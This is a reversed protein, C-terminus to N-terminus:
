WEWSFPNYWTWDTETEGTGSDSGSGSGSGDPCDCITPCPAQICQAEVETCNDPCGETQDKGSANNRLLFFGTLALGTIGIWKM